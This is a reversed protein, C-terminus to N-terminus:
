FSARLAIGVTRPDSPTGVILGSNGAQVTLNQMYEEDLLNRVWLSMEWAGAHRVGISANVLSYGDIRTYQSDSPDGYVGTRSVIDARVYGERARGGSTLEHTFETGASRTWRPLASLPKGSLDCVTTTSGIAEIPCPGNRYSDYVGDAYALSAYTTFHQGIRFSSDIEAGKVSVAEINALYGRLAGPGTDVVNAQFDRVDTDYIDANLQVRGKALQMKVGLETTTNREPRVVATALAPQNAATLPLGSMNIGGSKEGHAYSLYTLINGPFRYSAVVRGSGSDDDV